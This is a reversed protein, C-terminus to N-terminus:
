TVNLQDSSPGCVGDGLWDINVKICFQHFDRGKASTASLHSAVARITPLPEAIEAEREPFMSIATM